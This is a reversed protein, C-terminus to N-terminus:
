RRMYGEPNDRFDQPDKLNGRSKKMEEFEKQEIENLVEPNKLEGKDYILEFRLDGDM